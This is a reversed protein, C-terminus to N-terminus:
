GDILAKFSITDAPPNLLWDKIMERIRRIEELKQAESGTAKAPDPFPWHWRTTIGPFLPCKAESDHCVTIVHEYLRGARFLEFVSQPRKDSLDFGEEAMVQVVLPNIADAPELGGSEIEFADGYYRRLYAEAMQSRGSNHQCIFLVRIKKAM